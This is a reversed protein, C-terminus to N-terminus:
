KTGEGESGRKGSNETNIITKEKQFYFKIAFQKKKKRKRLPTQSSNAGEMLNEYIFRSEYFKIYIYIYIYPKINHM